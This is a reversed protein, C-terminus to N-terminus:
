SPNAVDTDVKDGSTHPAYMDGSVMIGAGNARVTSSGQISISPPFGEHGSSLQGQTAIPSGNIRITAVGVGHTGGPLNPANQYHIIAGNHNIM